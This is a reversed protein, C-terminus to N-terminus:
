KNETGVVIVTTFSFGKALTSLADLVAQRVQEDDYGSPVRANLAYVGSQVRTLALCTRARVMGTFVDIQVGLTQLVDTVQTVALLAFLLHDVSAREIKQLRSLCDAYVVAAMLGPSKEMDGHVEADMVPLVRQIQEDLKHLEMGAHAFVSTRDPMADMALALLVHLPDIVSHGLRKAQTEAEWIVSLARPDLMLSYM